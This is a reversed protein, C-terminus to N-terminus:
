KALLWLAVLVVGFCASAAGGIILQQKSISPSGASMLFAPVPTPSPVPGPATTPPVSPIAQQPAAIAAGPLSGPVSGPARPPLRDATERATARVASAASATPMPDLARAEQSRAAPASPAQTAPRVPAPRLAEGVKVLAEDFEAATQFRASPEKALAKLVVAALEKPIDGNVADPPSPPQLVQAAMLEFHSEFDFAPRGCLMEYLVM